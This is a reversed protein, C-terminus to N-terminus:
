APKLVNVGDCSLLAFVGTLVTPSTIPQSTIEVTITFATLNSIIFLGRSIAPLTLTIAATAPSGGDEDVLFFFARQLEADTLTRINTATIPVALSATMALDLENTADNVKAEANNQQAVVQTLNLSGM